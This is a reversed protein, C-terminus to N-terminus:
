LLTKGINLHAKWNCINGANLTLKVNIAYTATNFLPFFKKIADSMSKNSIVWFCDYYTFNIRDDVMHSLFPLISRAVAFWIVQQGFSNQDHCLVYLMDSSWCRRNASTIFNTSWKRLPMICLKLRAQIYTHVYTLRYSEFAKIYSTWIQLGPLAGRFVSRTRIHLDYALRNQWQPSIAFLGHMMDTGSLGWLWVCLM